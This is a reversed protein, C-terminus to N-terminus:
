SLLEKVITEFRTQDFPLDERRLSTSAYWEDGEPWRARYVYYTDTSGRFDVRGASWFRESGKRFMHGGASSVPTIEVENELLCLRLVEVEYNGTQEEGRQEKWSYVTLVGDPDAERLWDKVQAMFREVTTLWEQRREFRAQAKSNAAAERLFERLMSM